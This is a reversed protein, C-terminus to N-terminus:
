AGCATTFRSKFDPVMPNIDSGKQINFGEIRSDSTNVIKLKWQGAQAAEQVNVIHYFDFKTGSNSHISYYVGSKATSGDPRFLYIKLPKFTPLLGPVHWKAKLAISGPTSFAGISVIRENGRDLDLVTLGGMALNRGEPNSSASYIEGDSVSYSVIGAQPNDKSVNSVRVHYDGMQDCTSIPVRIEVLAKESNTIVTKSGVETGASGPTGRRLSILYSSKGGMNFLASTRIRLSINLEGVAVVAKATSSVSGGPPVTAIKLHTPAASEPSATALLVVGSTIALFYLYKKM